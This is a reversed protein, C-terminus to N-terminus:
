ARRCDGDSIRLGNGRLTRVAKLEVVIREEVLLDLRHEGVEVGCYVIPVRVQRDFEIEQKRMEIELAAQYVSELFGPGLTRHVEIAARIIRESLQRDELMANVQEQDWVTFDVAQPIIKNEELHFAKTTATLTGSECLTAALHGWAGGAATAEVLGDKISVAIPMGISRQAVYLGPVLEQVETIGPYGM